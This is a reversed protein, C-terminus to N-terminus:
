RMTLNAPGGEKATGEYRGAYIPQVVLAEATVIRQATYVAGRLAVALVGASDVIGNAFLDCARGSEMDYGYSDPQDQVDHLVRGADLGASEALARLPSELAQQVVTFGAREDEDRPQRPGSDRLDRAIRAFATAGGPVVGAELASRAAALGDRASRMRIGVETDTLGGM